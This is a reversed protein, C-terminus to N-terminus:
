FRGPKLYSAARHFFEELTQLSTQGLNRLTIAVVPRGREALAIQTALFQAVHYDPAYRAAALPEQAESLLVTSLCRGHGLITEHCSHIAAPGEQVDAPMNLRREFLGDAARDLIRRVAVGAPSYRTDGFFTLDGYEIRREAVLNRLIAAYLQPADMGNPEFNLDLRDYHLILDGRFAVQRKSSVMSKWCATHATGGAEQAEGYIRSAIAEQLDAGPRTAFNLGRLWALGFVCYHVVQMYRSLLSGRPLTLVALPYGARRLLAIKATDPGPMGSVRVAVFVRDQQPDRPPRYNALRPRACPMIKLGLKESQGLAEEFRQKTWMAAGAWDKPLVLTVKDRGAGGQAHLFSALRWATYIDKESLCANRIWAGLDVRALALPYLSGRALPGGHRGAVVGDLPLAARRYGRERALGDLLSGEAALSLFHARGDIRHRDYLNALKQLAVVPEYSTMGTTTGVVLASRLVASISLGSRREIDDLIAKLKVPDASDLVYCRPGRKLLGAAHYMWADAAAAGVGAWLLFRLPAQHASKIAARLEAAEATVQGAWEPHKEANWAASFVGYCNRTVRGAGDFEMGISALPDSADVTKLRGLIRETGFKQFFSESVDGPSDNALSLLM